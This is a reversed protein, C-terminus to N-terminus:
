VKLRPKRIAEDWPRWHQNGYDAICKVNEPPTKEWEIKDNEEESGVFQSVYGKASKIRKGNEDSYELNVSPVVAIKGYGLKWLDKCFSKPEGQACEDKLARRFQIQQELIPKATFTVAGNWCSFVQFPKGADLRQKAVPNNWFLNWASNWNGDPPIDFFSDGNMGRAIWVDYFTPDLGVYTWDMACTMHASQYRRQHILELIDEMCIAVDNIFIVTTNANQGLDGHILPRLAQNRLESLAKIRDSGTAKPDIENTQLFYKAGMREIHEHLLTLIEFTGDTSRGEVISLACNRPGLFRMSEFISGLLRPLLEACQHLDLAFLYKLDARSDHSDTSNGRERLYQYREGDPAPCELRPYTNDEPTLIATIYLPAAKLLTENAKKHFTKPPLSPTTASDPWVIIAEQTIGKEGSSSGGLAKFWDPLHSRGQTADYKYGQRFTTSTAVFFFVICLALAVQLIVIIKRRM